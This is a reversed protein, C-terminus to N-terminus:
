FPTSETYRWQLRRFNNGKSFKKESFQGIRDGSIRATEEGANLIESSASPSFDKEREYSRISKDELWKIPSPYLMKCWIERGARRFDWHNILDDEWFLLKQGLSSKSTRIQTRNSPHLLGSWPQNRRHILFWDQTGSGRHDRRTQAPIRMMYTHIYRYLLPCPKQIKFMHLPIFFQTVLILSTKQITTLAKPM